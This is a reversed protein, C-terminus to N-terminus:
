KDIDSRNLVKMKPFRAVNYDSFGFCELTCMSGIYDEQNGWINRLEEQSLGTIGAKFSTILNGERDKSPEPMEMVFAGVMGGRRDEEMDLLKAEFDEFVKNKLLQWSRKHEYPMGLQRIMLGEYGESLFIELKTNIEAEDAIVEFNPIVQVSRSSFDLLQPYRKEYGESSYIDYIYYNVNNLQSLHEPAKTERKLLGNLTNFSIERSFLEGDLILEGNANLGANSYSWGLQEEIHPIPLMVDGKRTYLTVEGLESIKALCRNGDIKPQVYIKQGRINLQDLTKSGKQKGTADYKHALLPSNIGSRLVGSSADALEFRYEGRLKLEMTATAEAVAQEYPSTENSKGINKGESVTVRNEVQKGDQLGAVTVIDWADGNPEVNIRWERVKGKSDIKYITQNIM